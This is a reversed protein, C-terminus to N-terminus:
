FAYDFGILPTVSDRLGNSDLRFLLNVNLLM